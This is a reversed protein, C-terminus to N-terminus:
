SLDRWILRITAEGQFVSELPQGTSGGRQATESESNGLWAVSMAAVYANSFTVERQNSRPKSLEQLAGLMDLMSSKVTHACTVIAYSIFVGPADTLPTTDISFIVGPVPFTANPNGERINQASTALAVLAADERLFVAFAERIRKECEKAM